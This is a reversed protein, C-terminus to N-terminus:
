QVLLISKRFHLIFHLQYLSYFLYLKGDEDALKTYFGKGAEVSVEGNEHTIYFKQQNMATPALM